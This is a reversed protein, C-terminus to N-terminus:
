LSREFIRGGPYRTPRAIRGAAPKQLRRRSSVRYITMESVSVPEGTSRLVHWEPDADLLTWAQNRGELSDFPILYMLNGALEFMHPHIGARAFLGGQVFHRHLEVLRAPSSCQYARVEFWPRAPLSAIRITAPLHAGHVAELVIGGSVGTVSLATALFTRRDM